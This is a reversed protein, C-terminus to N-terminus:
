DTGILYKCLSNVAEQMKDPKEALSIDIKWISLRAKEARDARSNEILLQDVIGSKEGPLAPYLLMLHNCNYVQSYAMMQYVDGQSIGRKKDAINCDLVKWKTDIIYQKGAVRIIVDPKTQFCPNRGDQTTLCYKRGGQAVVEVDNRGTFARRILSFVYSEYLENMAFLLTLGGDSRADRHTGQWQRELFQRARHLLSKWRQNTRDFHIANWDLDRPAVDAVDDMVFRLEHLKRRIGHNQTHRALLIITAKMVQMLMIDSSLEDYCCALLDPRVANRTFQVSVDLRGRLAPLDGEFPLYHRPLGRRSEALLDDAFIRILIDLLCDQQSAMDAPGSTGIKIEQVVALMHVLCSRAATRDHTVDPAGADVKPLIELSCGPVAIVGVTQGAQLYGDYHTLADRGGGLRNGRAAALLAQAQPRSFVDSGGGLAREVGVKGWERCVIHSM